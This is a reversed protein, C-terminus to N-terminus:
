SKIDFQKYNKIHFKFLLYKRLVNLIAFGYQVSRKFNIQSAEPFYKTSIPIDKIKMGAIKMQVIIETDFVFDDSNSELPLGMVKKSYARFGSHYETLNNGLIFNEVKHKDTSILYFIVIVKNHKNTFIGM